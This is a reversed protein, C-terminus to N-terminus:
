FYPKRAVPRRLLPRNSDISDDTAHTYLCYRLSDLCHDDASSTGVHEEKYSLFERILHECRESVLLGVCPRKTDEGDREDSTCSSSEMSEDAELRKRVEEIGGNFSKEAKVATYGAQEFKQTDAPEHECYITGRPKNNEELWQIADEVHANREYFEDLVVLQGYSTRGIELLVRPDRWGADYGYIRWGEGDEVLERADPHPLIHTDRTFQSYVLGQAAEFGGHLAQEERDTGGYQREFRAKEGDSLYPNDLTSARVVEIRLGIPNGNTDQRKALIEWAANYGNGTLTWFMVKPGAVGRLRSGMMELLDHLDEGYHSPEDMWIAGYEDGAYRNWRDASGLIIVSDNVLTLRHEARNYDAVIPSTEPGNYASTVIDTREGPLNKFLVRFTTDRAKTFDIGMALFRSGPYRLAQAILWRAGTISKGSGYGVLFAVVDHDSSRLADLTTRQSEWVDYTLVSEETDCVVGEPRTEPDASRWEVTFGHSTDESLVVDHIRQELENLRNERDRKTSRTM